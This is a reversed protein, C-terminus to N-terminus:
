YNFAYGLNMVINDSAFQNYLDSTDVRVSQYRYGGGIDWHPSIKYRYQLTADLLYENSMGGADVEAYFEGYSGTKVGTHIHGIPLAVLSSATSSTGSGTQETLEVQNESVSLGAGLKLVFSGEDILNYRWRARYENWRYAMFVDEAGTSKPYFNGNFNTDHALNGVVRMEYPSFQVFVENKDNLFFEFGSRISTTPDATGAFANFDITDGTSGPSKIENKGMWAAGFEFVFRVDPKFNVNKTATVPESVRDDGGIPINATVKMGGDTASASLTVDDILPETFAWNSMMAISAGAVVDDAYHNESIIRSYGVFTALAYSPIGYAYGYRTQIFSAGGFAAATHGSPFTDPNQGKPRWKDVAFKTTHVVVMNLGFGKAFMWRGETDDALYTGGLGALPIAIQLIDGAEEQWEAQLSSAALASLLINKALTKM